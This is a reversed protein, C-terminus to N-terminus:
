HQVRYVAVSDRTDRALKEMRCLHVLHAATEHLALPLQGRLADTGGDWHLAHALQWVTGEGWEDLLTCIEDCRRAHHALLQDIRDDVHEVPIGHAPLLRSIHMTHVKRLNRLYIGLADNGDGWVGIHPTITALIHDGGLLIGPERAWLGITDPTHGALDVAEFAYSAVPFRMGDHVSICDAPLTDGRAHASFMESALGYSAPVGLSAVWGETPAFATGVGCYIRTSPTRLRACLGSHAPSRDTLFIDTEEMCVGLSAFADRIAREGEDGAPVTDVLLHRAGTAGRVLYCVNQAGAKGPQPVTIRYLDNCVQEVAM